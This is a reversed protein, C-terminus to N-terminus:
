IKPRCKFVYTCVNSLAELLLYKSSFVLYQVYLALLSLNGPCGTKTSISIWICQNRKVIVMVLCSTFDIRPMQSCNCLDCLKSKGLVPCRPVRTRRLRRASSNSSRGTPSWCRRCGVSNGDYIKGKVLKTVTIHIRMLQICIRIWLIQHIRIRIWILLIVLNTKM